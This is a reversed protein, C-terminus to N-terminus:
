EAKIMEIAMLVENQLRDFDKIKYKKIYDFM